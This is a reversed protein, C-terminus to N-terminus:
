KETTKETRQKVVPAKGTKKGSNIKSKFLRRPDFFVRKPKKAQKKKHDVVKAFHESKHQDLLKRDQMDVRYANIKAQDDLTIDAKDVVYVNFCTPCAYAKGKILTKRKLEGCSGCKPIKREEYYRKKAKM